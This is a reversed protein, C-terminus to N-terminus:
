CQCFNVRGLARFLFGISSLVFQNSYLFAGITFFNWNHHRVDVLKLDILLRRVPVTISDAGHDFAEGLASASGTKRAQKGDLNDM